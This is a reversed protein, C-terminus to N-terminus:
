IYIKVTQGESPVLLMSGDENRVIKGIESNSLGWTYHPRKWNSTIIGTIMGLGFFVIVFAFVEAAEKMTNRENIPKM